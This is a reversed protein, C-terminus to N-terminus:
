KAGTRQRDHTGASMLERLRRLSRHVRVGVNVATSGAAEAIDVNRMDQYFKMYIIEQQPETLQELAAQLRLRSERDAAEQDPGRATDPLHEGLAERPRHGRSRREQRFFGALETRVISWLWAAPSHRCQHFKRVVTLFIRATIEEALEADGTRALVFSGVGEGRRAFLEEIKRRQDDTM